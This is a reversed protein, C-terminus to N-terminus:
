QADTVPPLICYDNNTSKAGEIRRDARSICVRLSCFFPGHFACTLWRVWVLGLSQQRGKVAERGGKQGGARAMPEDGSKGRFQSM